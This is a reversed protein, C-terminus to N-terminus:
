PWSTLLQTGLLDILVTLRSVDKLPIHGANTELIRSTFFPTRSMFALLIILALFHGDYTWIVLFINCGGFEYLFLKCNCQKQASTLM